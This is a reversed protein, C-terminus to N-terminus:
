LTLAINRGRCANGLAVIGDESMMNNRVNLERLHTSNQLIDILAFVGEDSIRNNKLNLNTLHTLHQFSPLLAILGEANIENNQSNLNTLNVLRELAPALAIMGATGLGNWDLDLTTLGILRAISPALVRIGRVDLDNSGVNLIRLDVLRELSPALATAGRFTMHNSELNLIRLGVLRALSPALAIMGQTRMSNASLSLTRLGVLRELATALATAGSSNIQNGELDLHQLSVLHGISPALAIMGSAGINNWGLSLTRLSVLHRLSTALATVGRVDLPNRCLSLTNLTAANNQLFTLFLENKLLRNVVREIACEVRKVENVCKLFEMGNAPVCAALNVRNTVIKFNDPANRALLLNVPRMALFNNWQPTNIHATFAIHAPLIGRFDLANLVTLPAGDLTVRQTLRLSQTHTKGVYRLSNLIAATRDLDIKRFHSLDFCVHNQIFLSNLRSSIQHELTLHNAYVFRNSNTYLAPTQNPVSCYFDRATGSLRVIEESTLFSCMMNAFMLPKDRRLEVLSAVPTNRAVPLPLDLAKTMSRTVRHSLSPDPHRANRRGAKLPNVSKKTNQIPNIELRAVAPFIGTLLVFLILKKM